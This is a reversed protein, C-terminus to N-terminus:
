KYYFVFGLSENAAPGLGTTTVYSKVLNINLGKFQKLIGGQESTFLSFLPLQYVLETDQVALTLLCYKSNSQSVMTKNNPSQSLENASIAEIACTKVNRLQPIDQFYFRKGSAGASAFNLEVFYSKEIVFM